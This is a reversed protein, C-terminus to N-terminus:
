APVNALKFPQGPSQHVYGSTVTMFKMLRIDILDLAALFVEVSRASKALTSIKRSEQAYRNWERRGDLM